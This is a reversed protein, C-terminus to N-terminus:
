AAAARIPHPANWREAYADLATEVALDWAAGAKESLEPLGVLRLQKV